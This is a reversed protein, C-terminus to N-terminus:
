DYYCRCIRRDQYAIWQCNAGEALFRICREISVEVDFHASPLPGYSGPNVFAWQADTEQLSQILIVLFLM